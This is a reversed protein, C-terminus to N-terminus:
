SHVKVVEVESDDSDWGTDIRKQHPLVRKKISFTQKVPTTPPSLPPYPPLAGDEGEAQLSTCVEVKAFKGQRAKGVAKGRSKSRNRQVKRAM